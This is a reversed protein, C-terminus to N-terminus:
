RRVMTKHALKKEVAEALLDKYEMESPELKLAKKFSSEAKAYQRMAMYAMGLNAHRSANLDDLHVAQEFNRIADAFKDQHYLVLGLNNLVYGNQPDTKLAQRFAAEADEWDDGNELYIVGLRSYAKSCKPDKSAVQLYLQEAAKMEGKRFHIDAESLLKDLEPDGTAPEQKEESMMPEMPFLDPASSSPSTPRKRALLGSSMKIAKRGVRGEKKPFRATLKRWDVLLIVLVLSLLFIIKITM